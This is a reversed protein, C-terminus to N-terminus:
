LSRRNQSYEEYRVFSVPDNCYNELQCLYDLLKENKNLPMGEKDIDIWSSNPLRTLDLGNPVPSFDGIVVTATGDDFDSADLFICSIVEKGSEDIYGYRNQFNQVWARGEHFYGALKWKCPIVIKGRNDAYGWKENQCIPIFGCIDHSNM